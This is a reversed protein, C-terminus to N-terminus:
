VNAASLFDIWRRRAVPIMDGTCMKVKMAGKQNIEAIRKKNIIFSRHIKCFSPHNYESAIQALTKSATVVHRKGNKEICISTYAGEAKLYIIEDMAAVYINDGQRLVINKSSAPLSANANNPSTDNYSYRKLIKKYCDLLREKQIPKLLYDLVDVNFAKLAYKEYATVFVIDFGFAGSEQLINFINDRCIEIDLFAIDINEHLVEAIRSLRSETRIINIRPCYQQLHHELNSICGPEDDIIIARIREM